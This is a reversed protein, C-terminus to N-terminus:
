GARVRPDAPRTDWRWLHELLLCGLEEAHQEPLWHGAGALVEFRHPGSVWRGTTTAARYELWRRRCRGRNPWLGPIPTSGSPGWDTARAFARPHPTSVATLTAVTPSNALWGGPWWEAGTMASWTFSKRTSGILLSHAIM